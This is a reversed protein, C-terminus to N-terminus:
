QAHHATAEHADTDGYPDIHIVAVMPYQFRHHLEHEVLHALEHGERVTLEPDVSVAAVVHLQHGHWRVRLDPVALVGVVGSVTSSVDDFIEPEVGDLLRRAMRRGSQVLLWIIGLAVVLGAIPDVWAAGFAAGIAAAVVALSTMADTRAHQGDTVLAESGIQRGIRIRYRAVLENGLAGIVGAVVVWPIADMLRPAFLRHASEWVILVASLGIFVVIILGAIDEVRNFGFTYRRTPKRRGMAFAIWLPIATLADTVNHLTDSLLAVSGSFMFIVAQFLATVGLGALSIKTARIGIAGTDGAFGGPGHDHSHFHLIRVAGRRLRQVWSRSNAAGDHMHERHDHSM